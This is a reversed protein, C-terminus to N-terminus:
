VRCSMVVGHLGRQGSSCRQLVLCEVAAFQSSPRTVPIIVAAIANHMGFIFATGSGAAVHCDFDLFLIPGVYTQSPFLNGAFAWIGLGESRSHLGGLGKLFHLSPCSSPMFSSPLFSPLGFDEPIDAQARSFKQGHQCGYHLPRCAFAQTHRSPQENAGWM